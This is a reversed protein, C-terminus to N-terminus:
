PLLRLESVKNIDNKTIEILLNDGENLTFVQSAQTGNVYITYSSINTTEIDSQDYKGQDFAIQQNGTSVSFQAFFFTQVVTPTVKEGAFQFDEYETTDPEEAGAGKLRKEVGDWLFQYLGGEQNGPETITINLQASDPSLLEASVEITAFQQLQDLDARAAQELNFITDKSLQQEQLVRVTRSNFQLGPNGGFLLSNAWYDEPIEGETRSGDTSEEVNGGFLSLFLMTDWGQTLKLDSGKVVLDGGEKTDQFQLDIM